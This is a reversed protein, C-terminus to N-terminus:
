DTDRRGLTWKFDRYDNYVEALGTWPNSLITIASDGGTSIHIVGFESFGSPYFLLFPNSRRDGATIKGRPTSVDLLVLRGPLKVPDALSPISPPPILTASDGIAPSLLEALELQLIPLNVRGGGPQMLSDDSNGGAQYEARMVGVKYSNDELNFDLRYFSQDMVAQNNLLVITETLKRLATQERWADLTGTRVAILGTALGVIVIVLILEVITFGGPSRLPRPAPSQIRTATM